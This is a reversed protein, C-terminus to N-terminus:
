GSNAPQGNTSRSTLSPSETPPPPSASNNAATAPPRLLIGLPHHLRVHDSLRPTHQPHVRRPDRSLRRERREPQVAQHAQLQAM